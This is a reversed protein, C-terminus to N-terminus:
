RGWILSPGPTLSPIWCGPRVASRLRPLAPKPSVWASTAKWRMIRNVDVPVTKTTRIDTYVWITSPSIETVTLGAPATAGTQLQHRGASSIGTLDVFATIDASTYKSIDSKKGKITVSVTNDYGSIVSMNYNDVLQTENEINVLVGTFTQEWDPSDISMVYLWLVIAALVCFIRATVDQARSTRVTYDGTMKSEHEAYKSEDRSLKQDQKDQQM